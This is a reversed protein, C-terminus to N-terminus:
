RQANRGKIPVCPLDEESFRVERANWTLGYTRGIAGDLM